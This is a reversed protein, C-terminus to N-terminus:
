NDIWYWYMFLNVWFFLLFYTRLGMESFKAGLLSAMLKVGGVM